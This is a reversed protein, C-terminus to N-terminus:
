ASNGTTTSTWCLEGSPSYGATAFQNTNDATIGDAIPRAPQGFPRDGLNHVHRYVLQGIVARGLPAGTRQALVEVDTVDRHRADPLVVSHLGPLDVGELDHRIGVEFVFEDIDHTEIHVWRFPCHDKTEVLCSLDMNAM